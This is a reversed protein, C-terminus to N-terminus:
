DFRQSVGFEDVAGFLAAMSACIRGVVFEGNVSTMEACAASSTPATANNLGEYRLNTRASIRGHTRSHRNLRKAALFIVPM